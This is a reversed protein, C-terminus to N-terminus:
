HRVHTSIKAIWTHFVASCQLNCRTKPHKIYYTVIDALDMQVSLKGDRAPYIMWVLSYRFMYCHTYIYRGNKHEKIAPFKRNNDTFCMLSVFGHNKTYNKYTESSRGEKHLESHLSHVFLCVCVCVCLYTNVISKYPFKSLRKRFRVFRNHYPLDV